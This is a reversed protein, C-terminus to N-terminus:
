PRAAKDLTAPCCRWRHVIGARTNCQVKYARHKQARTHKQHAPLRTGVNDRQAVLVGGRGACGPGCGPSKRPAVGFLVCTTYDHSNRANARKSPSRQYSHLANTMVGSSIIVWRVSEDAYLYGLSGCDTCVVINPVRVNARQPARCWAM